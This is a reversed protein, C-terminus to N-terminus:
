TGRNEYKIIGTDNITVKKHENYFYFSAIRNKYDLMLRYYCTVYHCIFKKNSKKCRKLKIYFDLINKYFNDSFHKISFYVGVLDAESTSLLISFMNYDICYIMLYHGETERYQTWISFIQDVTKVLTKNEVQM